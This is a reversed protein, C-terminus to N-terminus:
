NDKYFGGGYRWTVSFAVPPLICWQLLPSVGIGVGAVSIIPMLESYSWSGLLHVNRWESYVTYVIGLITALLAVRVFHHAPWGRGGVSLTAVVLAGSAILIDGVMCHTVAVAQEWTSGKRWISYLPLHSAEWLLSAVLITGLYFALLM